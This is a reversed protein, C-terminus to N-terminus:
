PTPRQADLENLLAAAVTLREVPGRVLLVNTRPDATISLRSDAFVQQLVAALEAASAYRLQFVKIQNAAPAAAARGSTDGKAGGSVSATLVVWTQAAAKGATTQRGGVLTPEGPKVKLSSEVTLTAVSSPSFEGAGEAAGEAKQPVIQSRTLKLNVAVQGDDEVLAVAQLMTGISVDTYNATSRPGAEGGGRGGGIFSRGIARPVQEGFQVMTKQHEVTTLRFRSVASLKGTKELALIAAPQLIEVAAEPADAIVVELNIARSVRATPDEAAATFPSAVLAFSLCVSALFYRM